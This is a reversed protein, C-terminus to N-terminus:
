ASRTPHNRTSRVRPSCSAMGSQFKDSSWPGTTRTGCDGVYQWQSDVTVPTFDVDDDAGEADGDELDEDDEPLEDDDYYRERYGGGFYFPEEAGGSEEIHIIGLYAACKARNAAELM